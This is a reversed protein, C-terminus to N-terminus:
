SKIVGEMKRKMDAYERTIAKKMNSFDKSVARKGTLKIVEAQLTAIALRMRIKSNDMVERHLAIKEATTVKRSKIGFPDEPDIRSCRQGKVRGQGQATRLDDRKKIPPLKVRPM